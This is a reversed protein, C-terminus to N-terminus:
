DQNHSSLEDLIVATNESITKYAESLRFELEHKITGLCYIELASLPLKTYEATDNIRQAFRELELSTFLWSPFTVTYNPRTM